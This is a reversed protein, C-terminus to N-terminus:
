EKPKRVIKKNKRKKEVPQEVVPNSVDIIKEPTLIIPAPPEPEKYVEVFKDKNKLSEKLEEVTGGRLVCVPTQINNFQYTENEEIAKVMRDNIEAGIVEQGTHYVGANRIYWGDCNIRVIFSNLNKM